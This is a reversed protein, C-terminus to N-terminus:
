RRENMEDRSFVRGADVHSLRQMLDVYQNGAASRAIYGTLWERFLENITTNESSARRRAERILSEDATLTINKIM